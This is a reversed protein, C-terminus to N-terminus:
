RTPTSASRSRTSAVEAAANMTRSAHATVMSDDAGLV